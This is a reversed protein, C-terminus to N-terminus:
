CFSTKMPIQLTNSGHPALVRGIDIVNRTQWQYKFIVGCDDTQMDPKYSNQWSSMTLEIGDTFKLEKKDYGFWVGDTFGEHWKSKLLTWEHDTGISLLSGGEKRCSTLADAWNKTNIELRYAYEGVILPKSEVYFSM